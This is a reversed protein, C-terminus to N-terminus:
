LKVIGSSDVVAKKTVPDVVLVVGLVVIGVIAVTGVLPVVAERQARVAPLQGARVIAEEATASLPLGLRSAVGAPDVMLDAIYRGDVVAQNYLEVVQRAEEESLQPRDALLDPEIARYAAELQTVSTIQSRMDDWDGAIRDSQFLPQEFAVNPANPREPVDSM